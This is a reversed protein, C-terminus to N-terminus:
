ANRASRRMALLVGLTLGFLVHEVFFTGYGVMDAMDSIPNGADFLKAAIPLGIWTSAAFVVAGWAAGAAALLPGQLRAVAALAVFAVGYMAGTVMHILAGLVAPGFAVYVNDGAMGKMMSTMMEDPAIVLSAIHYLPTFFGHNQYTASAIMAYAAMVMSAAMGALAGIAVSQASLRATATGTTRTSTASSM